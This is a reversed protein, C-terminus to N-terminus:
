GRRLALARRPNGTLAADATSGLGAARLRPVFTRLLYPLGPGGGLTTWYSRRALDSGLLLRDALGRDTLHAILDVIESDPGYKARGPMDFALYAGREALAALKDPDPDHDIHGLIVADEPVGEAALADLLEYAMTGKDCHTAVPAGTRRHAQAIAPVLRRIGPGFRHYEAAIKIIGARAPSRHIVPGALGHVDMGAEIEATLLDAVTDVPYHHLWHLDDYYGSKHFGTTAVIHVGTREAIARLGDPSRGFGLPTMEVVTGLGLERAPGVEAVASDVSDLRFDPEQRVPWGGTMLLHEHAFVVGLDAGDIDGLVTRVAQVTM